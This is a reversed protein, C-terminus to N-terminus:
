EIGLYNKIKNNIDETSYISQIQNIIMNKINKFDKDYRDNYTYKHTKIITGDDDSIIYKPYNEVSKHELRVIKQNFLEPNFNNDKFSENFIEKITNGIVHNIYTVRDSDSDLHEVQVVGSFISVLIICLLFIIIYIKKHIKQLKM